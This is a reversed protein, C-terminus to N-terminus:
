VNLIPLSKLVLDKMVGPQYAHFIILNSKALQKRGSNQWFVAPM